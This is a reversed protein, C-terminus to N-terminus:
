NTKSKVEITIRGLTRKDGVELEQITKKMNKQAAYEQHFKYIIKEGEKYIQATIPTFGESANLPINAERSSGILFPKTGLLYPEQRLQEQEAFAIMWGICFGLIAAGSLRGPIDGFVSATVLFGIAGVM